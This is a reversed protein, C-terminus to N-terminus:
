RSLAAAGIWRWNFPQVNGPLIEPEPSESNKIKVWLEDLKNNIATEPLVSSDNKLTGTLADTVQQIKKYGPYQKLFVELEALEEEGASGDM